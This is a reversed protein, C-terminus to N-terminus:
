SYMIINQFAGGMGFLNSNWHFTAFHESAINYFLTLYSLYLLISNWILALCFYKEETIQVWIVNLDWILGIFLSQYRNIWFITILVHGDRSHSHFLSFMSFSFFNQGAGELLGRDFALSQLAFLCGSCLAIFATIVVLPHLCQPLVGFWITSLLVAKQIGWFHFTPVLHFFTNFVAMFFYPLWDTSLNFLIM